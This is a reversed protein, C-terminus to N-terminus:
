AEEMTAQKLFIKLREMEDKVRLDEDAMTNLTIKGRMESEEEMQVLGPLKEYQKQGAQGCLSRLVISMEMSNDQVKHQTEEGKTCVAQGKVVQQRSGTAGQLLLARAEQLRPLPERTMAEPPLMKQAIAEAAGELAQTKQAMAKAAVEEAPLARAMEWSLMKEAVVEEVPLARARRLNKKNVRM